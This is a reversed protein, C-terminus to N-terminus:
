RQPMRLVEGVADEARAPVDLEVERRGLRSEPVLEIDERRADARNGRDGKVRAKSRCSCRCFIGRRARRAARWLAAEVDDLDRGRAGVGPRRERRAANRVHAHEVARRSRACRYLWLICARLQVTSDAHCALM